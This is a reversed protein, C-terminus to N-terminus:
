FTSYPQVDIKLADVPDFELNEKTLHSKLFDIATQIQECKLLLQYRYVSKLRFISSEVPGLVQFPGDKIKAKVVESCKKAEKFNKNQVTILILSKFPPYGLAKRRKLEEEYFSEFDGKTIAQFVPNYPDMSQIIVRGKVGRGARGAMQAVLQFARENARFDPIAFVHDTDIVGVLEVTPFDLGKTIMKTGVVVDIKMKSIEKLVKELSSIDNIEERDIRKVRLGPFIKSVENEVRETGIGGRILNTSGCKPCSQPIKETYGCYHCKLIGKNRHYTLAVDCNPCMFIYGCDACQLRTSFGKRPVFLFSQNGNKAVKEMQTVLEHSVIEGRRGRMDVVNVKPIKGVARSTLKHLTIEGKKALYYTEVRPTASSLLFTAKELECRRKAVDVANYFPRMAYQKYSEDQEEDVIILGLNKMPIWVASRTGILIDTKGEVAELWEKKRSAGLGSHYVGIKRDPFRQRTRLLLQPTLSIEPVLILVKKSTELVREAIEFYVETKGSGTVGYILHHKFPESLIEQVVKKQEANLNFKKLSFTSDMEIIKVYGKRELSKITSRPFKKLATSYEIPDTELLQEIVEEERKGLRSSLIKSISTSLTIYRTKTISIRTMKVDQHSPLFCLDLIEGISAFYRNSMEIALNLMEDNLLSSKDVKEIVDRTKFPPPEVEGLVYGIKKRNRVPVLVRIGRELKEQSSYVLPPLPYKSIAISYFYIM